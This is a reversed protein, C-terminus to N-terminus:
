RRITVPMTVMGTNVREADAATIRLNWRDGELDAPVEFRVGFRSPQDTWRVVGTAGIMGDDDILVGEIAFRNADWLGGPTIPCGCLMEMRVAVETSAGVPLEILPGIVRLTLGHLAIVVGEGDLHVGPLMLLTTSARQLAHPTGLPAEVEIEIPTPGVLPLSSRFAAAGEIDFVSEGRVRPGMILDTDGTGGQIHGELLTAGTDAHRITVYAGGVGTGILKADNALARVVIRTEIARPAAADGSMSAGASPPTAGSTQAAAPGVGAVLLPLTIAILVPLSPRSMLEDTWPHPM